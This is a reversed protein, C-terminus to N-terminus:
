DNTTLQPTVKQRNARKVAQIEARRRCFEARAIPDAALRAWFVRSATRGGKSGNASLQKRTQKGLGAAYAKRSTEAIEQSSRVKAIAAMRESSFQEPHRTHQREYRHQCFLSREEPTMNDWFALSKTSLQKKGEPTTARAKAKASREEHTTKTMLFEQARKALEAKEALTLSENFTTINQVCAKHRNETFVNILGCDNRRADEINAGQTDWRLNDLRNNSRSDDYHCCVKGEPRPGVFTQLVAHSIAKTNRLFMGKMRRTTGNHQVVIREVRWVWGFNSVMWNKKPHSLVLEVNRFLCDLGYQLRESFNIESMTYVERTASSFFNLFVSM